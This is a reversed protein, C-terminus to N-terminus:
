CNKSAEEHANEPVPALALYLLRETQVHYVALCIQGCLGARPSEANTEGLMMQMPATQTLVDEADAVLNKVNSQATDRGFEVARGFDRNPNFLGADAREQTAMPQQEIASMENQIIQANDVPLPNFVSVPNVGDRGLQVPAVMASPAPQMAMANEINNSTDAQQTAQNAAEFANPPPALIGDVESKFANNRAIQADIPDVPLQAVPSPPVGVVPAAAPLKDISDLLLSGTSKIARPAPKANNQSDILDLLLSM